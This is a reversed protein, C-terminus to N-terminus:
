RHYHSQDRGDQNKDKKERDIVFMYISLLFVGIVLYSDAINFVPFNIFKIKFMDIVYGHWIRDLLNGFAGSFMLLLAAIIWKSKSTSQWFYYFIV